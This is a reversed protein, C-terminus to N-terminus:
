INNLLEKLLNIVYQQSPNWDLIKNFLRKSGTVAKSGKSKLPLVYLKTDLQTVVGDWSLNIYILLDVLGSTAGSHQLSREWWVCWRGDWSLDIYILLDVLGSTAGSHQLSREWWVSWRRMTTLTTLWGPLRESPLLTRGWFGPCISYLMTIIDKGLFRSVNIIVHHCHGEGSVQVCQTYCPSLTRGWFGPCM